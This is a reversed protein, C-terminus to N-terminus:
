NECIYWLIVSEGGVLFSFGFVGFFFKFNRVILKILPSSVFCAQVRPTYRKLVPPPNEKPCIAFGIAAPTPKRNETENRAQTPNHPKSTEPVPL